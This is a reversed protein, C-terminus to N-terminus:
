RAATIPRNSTAWPASASTSAKGASCPWRGCCSKSGRAPDFLAIMGLTWTKKAADRVPIHPRAPVGNPIVAIKEAAYGQRRAYQGLSQSVAILAAAQRAGLREAWANMRDQWPHTSDHDTPSHLHHVLPVGSLKSALGAVMAARVGHSHLLHFGGQRVLRALNLAPRLDFRNRMPLKYLPVEQGQRLAAFRGPKLCAQAM